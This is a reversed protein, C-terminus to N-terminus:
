RWLGFDAEGLDILADIAACVEASAVGAGLQGDVRVRAAEALEHWNRKATM